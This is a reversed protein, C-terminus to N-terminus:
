PNQKTTTAPYAKIETAVKGDTSTVAAKMGVKLDTGTATQGNVTIKTAHTFAYSATHPESVLTLGDGRVQTITGTFTQPAAPKTTPQTVPKTTTPVFGRIESATKGDTSVVLASMGVKLDAVTAAHDAVRITPAHAIAFTTTHDGSKLTIADASVAAIVGTFNHAAPETTPKTTTAPYARVESATKGDTSIVLAGMGVKLDAATAAHGSVQITTGRPMAFSITHSSAQLTIRDGSVQSIVGTFNTNPETAPSEAQGIKIGVLIGLMMTLTFLITTIRAAM